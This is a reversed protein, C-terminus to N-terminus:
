ENRVGKGAGAGRVLGSDLMKQVLERTVPGAARSGSGGHELVVVFSYRPEDAPVYGAFWAHDPKGPGTEATGTKGAIAVEALRVTKYGTGYPEQVVARLGERVRALTHETLGPIRRRSLDQPRDDIDTASRATGDASVVHPTVLWGGNAIAAMARAMQLPTVTLSSQGIALGLAERAFRPADAATGPSGPVNGNKEFPLDIGCERGLGFRDCWERLPLFGM